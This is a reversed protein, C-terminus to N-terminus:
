IAFENLVHNNCLYDLPSTALELFRHPASSARHAWLGYTPRDFRNTALNKNSSTIYENYQKKPWLHIVKQWPLITFSQLCAIIITSEVSKWHQSFFLCTDWVCACMTSHQNGIVCWPCEILSKSHQLHLWHYILGYCLWRAIKM